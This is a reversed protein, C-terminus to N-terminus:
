NFKNQYYLLSFGDVFLLLVFLLTAHMFGASCVQKPASQTWIHKIFFLEAHQFHTISSTQNLNTKTKKKERGSATMSM